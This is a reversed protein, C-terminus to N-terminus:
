SGPEGSGPAPGPSTVGGRSGARGGARAPGLSLVAPARGADQPRVGARVEGRQARSRDVCVGARPRRPRGPAKPPRPTLVTPVMPRPPALPESPPVGPEDQVALPPPEDRELLDRPPPPPPRPVPSTATPLPATESPARQREAGVVGRLHAAAVAARLGRAGGVERRRNAAAGGHARCRVRLARRLQPVRSYPDAGGRFTRLGPAHLPVPDGPDRLAVRGAGGGCHQVPGLPPSVGLLVHLLLDGRLEVLHRQLQQRWRGRGRDRAAAWRAEVVAGSSPAVAVEVAVAPAVEWARTKM